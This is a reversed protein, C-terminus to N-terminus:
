SCIADRDRFAQCAILGGLWLCAIALGKPFEVDAVENAEIWFGIEGYWSSRCYWKPNYITLTNAGLVKKRRRYDVELYKVFSDVQM